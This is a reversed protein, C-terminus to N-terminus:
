KLSSGAARRKSPSFGTWFAITHLIPRCPRDEMNPFSSPSGPQRKRLNHFIMDPWGNEAFDSSLPECDEHKPRPRERRGLLGSTRTGCPRGNPGISKAKEHVSVGRHDRRVDERSRRRERGGRVDHDPRTRGYASKSGRRFGSHPRRPRPPSSPACRRGQAADQVADSVLPPSGSMRFPIPRSILM